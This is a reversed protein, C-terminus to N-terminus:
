RNHYTIALDNLPIATDLRDPGSSPKASPSETSERAQADSGSM